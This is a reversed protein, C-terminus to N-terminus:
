KKDDSAKAEEGKEAGEKEAAAEEGEAEEAEAAVEEEEVVRPRFVTVVAGDSEEGHTLALIEVGEPVRVDSLHLSHGLKLQSVDVELFEPLDKPLCSVEVDTQLHNIVGGEQKVGVCEDEGIFHLPVHVKIQQDESVRLLDLHLIQAKSPHRQIDRLVVREEKGNVKLTLIHSYFAENELHHVLEDAQISLNAPEGGGYVVAPVLGANRLRRMASRGTEDRPSANLEFQNQMVSEAPDVHFSARM